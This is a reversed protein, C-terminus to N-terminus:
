CIHELAINHIGNMCVWIGVCPNESEMLVVKSLVFCEILGSSPTTYSSVVRELSSM